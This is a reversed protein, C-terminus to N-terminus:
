GCCLSGAGGRCDRSRSFGQAPDALLEATCVSWGQKAADSLHVSGALVVLMFWQKRVVARRRPVSTIAAIALNAIASQAVQMIGEGALM